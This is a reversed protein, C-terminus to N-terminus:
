TVRVKEAESGHEFFRMATEKAREHEIKSVGYDKLYFIGMSTLCRRFEEEREGRQLELLTFIPLTPQKM